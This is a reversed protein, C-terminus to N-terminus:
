ARLSKIKQNRAQTFAIFSEILDTIPLSANRIRADFLASGTNSAVNRGLLTDGVGSINELMNLEVELMRYAGSDTPNTHVQQPFARNMGNIPIVGDPSAWQDAVDKMTMNRLMQDIPFVLVGKAASAMMSDIMVMIRNICKQQDLIDEVCSHVEGDTLPYLKIIFPHCGDSASSNRRALVTGDPALWRCVWTMEMQVRGRVSTERGELSWTEIIRFLGPRAVFFDNQAGVAVGLLDEPLFSSPSASGSDALLIHRLNQIHQRSGNGFRNVIESWTFDHLQGIFNIDHGRPDRYPSVFISRPDVNDVWVGSGAPRREASVRQVACGSIVFEELIRADLEPMSNLSDNSGPAPDYMGSEAAINRFRGVIVKVMQRILNNTVPRRNTRILLEREPILNGKGDDVPDAWQDGYTFTKLRERRARFDSAATWTEFARQLTPIDKTM